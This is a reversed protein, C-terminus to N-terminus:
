QLLLLLILLWLVLAVVVMAQLVDVVRMLRSPVLLM